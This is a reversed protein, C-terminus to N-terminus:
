NPHNEWYIPFYFINWVVLWSLYQQYNTTNISKVLFLFILNEGVIQEDSLLPDEFIANKEDSIDNMWQFSHPKGLNESLGM